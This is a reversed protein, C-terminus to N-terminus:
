ISSCFSTSISCSCFSRFSCCFCNSASLTGSIGTTRVFVGRGNVNSDNQREFHAAQASLAASLAFQTAVRYLAVQSHFATLKEVHLGRPGEPVPPLLRLLRLLRALLCHVYWHLPLLLVMAMIEMETLSQHLLVLIQRTIRTRGPSPSHEISYGQGNSYHQKARHALLGSPTYAPKQQLQLAAAFTTAVIAGDGVGPASTQPM